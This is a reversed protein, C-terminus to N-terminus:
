NLFASYQLLCSVPIHLTTFKQRPLLNDNSRSKKSFAIVDVLRYLLLSSCSRSKEQNDSFLNKSIQTVSGESSLISEYFNRTAGTFLSAEKEAILRIIGQWHADSFM